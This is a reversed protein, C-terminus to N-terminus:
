VKKSFTTICDLNPAGWNIIKQSDIVLELEDCIKQVDRASVGARWRTHETWRKGDAGYNSHHVVGRGGPKLIRNFEKLYIALDETEFHVMADWSYCFTITEKELPIATDNNILFDVNKSNSFRHRCSDIASKSIDCLILKNDKRLFYQAIRGTGCAFDLVISLDFQSLNPEFYKKYQEASDKESKEYYNNWNFDKPKVTGCRNRLMLLGAKMPELYLFVMENQYM